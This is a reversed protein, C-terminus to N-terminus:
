GCVTLTVAVSTAPFMEVGAVPVNVTSEVAGVRAIPVSSRASAAPSVAFM